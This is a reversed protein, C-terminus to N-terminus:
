MSIIKAKSEDPMSGYFRKYQELRLKLREAREREVAAAYAIWKPSEAAEEDRLRNRCDVCYKEQRGARAYFYTEHTQIIQRCRSCAWLARARAVKDPVEIAKPKEPLHSVYKLEPLLEWDPDCFFRVLIVIVAIGGVLSVFGGGIKKTAAANEYPADHQAAGPPRRYYSHVYTGDRRYYGSVSVTKPTSEYHATVNLACGGIQLVLGIPLITFIGALRARGLWYRIM